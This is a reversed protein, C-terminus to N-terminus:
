AIIPWLRNAKPRMPCVQDTTAAPSHRCNGISSNAATQHMPEAHEMGARAHACPTPRGVPQRLRQEPRPLTARRDPRDDRRKDHNRRPLCCRQKATPQQCSRATDAIPRRLVPCRPRPRGHPSRVDTAVAAHAIADQERSKEFRRGPSGAAIEDRDTVFNWHRHGRATCRNAEPRSRSRVKIPAEPSRVGCLPSTPNSRPTHREGRM